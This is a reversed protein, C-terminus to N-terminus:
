EAGLLAFPALKREARVANVKKLNLGEYKGRLGAKEAWKKAYEYSVLLAGGTFPAAPAQPVPPSTLSSVDLVTAMDATAVEADVLDCGPLDRLIQDYEGSKRMVYIQNALATKSSIRGGPLEDLRELITEVQTKHSHLVVATRKRDETWVRGEPNRVGRSM